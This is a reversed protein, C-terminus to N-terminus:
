KRAAIQERRRRDQRLGATLNEGFDSAEGVPRIEVEEGRDFPARERWEVAEDTSRV